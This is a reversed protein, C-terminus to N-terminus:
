QDDDEDYGPPYTQTAFAAALKEAWSKGSALVAQAIEIKARDPTSGKVRSAYRWFKGSARLQTELQSLTQM